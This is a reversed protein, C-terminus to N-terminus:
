IVVVVHLFSSFVLWILNRAKINEAENSPDIAYKPKLEILVGPQEHERGFIVVGM